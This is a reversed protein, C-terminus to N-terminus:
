CDGSAIVRGGSVVFVLRVSVYQKSRLGGVDAQRLCGPSVLLPHVLCMRCLCWDYRYFSRRNVGFGAAVAFVDSGREIGDQVQMSSKAIAAAPLCARFYGKQM